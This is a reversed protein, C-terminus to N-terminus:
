QFSGASSRAGSAPNAQDRKRALNDWLSCFAVLPYSGNCFLEITQLRQSAAKDLYQAARGEELFAIAAGLCRVKKDKLRSKQDDDESEGIAENCLYTLRDLFKDVRDCHDQAVVATALLPLEWKDGNIVPYPEQKPKGHEKMTPPLKRKIYNYLDKVTICQRSNIADLLCYTFAGHQLEKIEYSFDSPDCSFITVIGSRELSKMTEASISVVSKRGFQERCADIFMVINKCTTKELMDILYDVGMATAELIEPRTATAGIPLLYDKDSKVGHGSFYFLLLDDPEIAADNLIQGFANYIADRTPERGLGDGFALINEDKFDLQNILAKRVDVVDNACWELKPVYAYNTPGILIAWKERFPPAPAKM